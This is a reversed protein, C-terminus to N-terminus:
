LVVRKSVPHPFIGNPIRRNFSSDDFFFKTEDKNAPLQLMNFQDFTAEMEAKWDAYHHYDEVCMFSRNLLEPEIAKASASGLKPLEVSQRQGLWHKNFSSNIIKNKFNAHTKNSSQATKM